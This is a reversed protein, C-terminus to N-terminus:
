QFSYDTITTIIHMEKTAKSAVVQKVVYQTMFDPCDCFTAFAAGCVSSWLGLMAVDIALELQARLSLLTTRTQM